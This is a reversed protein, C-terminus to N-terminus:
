KNMWENIHIYIHTDKEQLLTILSEYRSWGVLTAESILSIGLSLSVTISEVYQL